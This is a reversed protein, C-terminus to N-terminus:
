KLIWPSPYTWSLSMATASTGTAWHEWEAFGNDLRATGSTVQAPAGTSLFVVLALASIWTMYKM